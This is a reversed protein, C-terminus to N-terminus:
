HGHCKKLKKGSGCWCPDNRGMPLAPLRVGDVYFWRGDERVFNSREHLQAVTGQHRYFAIFAVTGSDGRAQDVALVQLRLWETEEGTEALLKRDDPKRQSPHHTAILYDIEGKSFATYRSRMLQEPNSPLATGMLFPECCARYANGSGCSCLDAM